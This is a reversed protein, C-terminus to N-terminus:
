WVPVQQGRQVLFEAFALDDRTDIDVSRSTPMRYAVTKRPPRDQVYDQWCYVYIAGNM